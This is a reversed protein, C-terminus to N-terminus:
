GDSPRGTQRVEALIAEAGDHLLRQALERGIAATADPDTAPGTTVAEAARGGDLSVVRGILRLRQEGEQHVVQAYAAVPVQCGGELRRLMGREAAVALETGTDNVARRAAEMAAADGSRVTVALAGQGPAPLMLELPLREGIRSDLGLRVLGAVALITATWGVTADLHALRTAINGRVEVVQLDPRAHLLQARRRLSSTAITAGSPLAAWRLPGRGVLADRPDERESVAAIELGAPIQTPIDKLSHVALDILGRLLAEDLQRTFIATSGIKSLPVDHMVDGSTRIKVLTTPHGIAELRERVHHTQWLALPSDRTGIRLTRTM